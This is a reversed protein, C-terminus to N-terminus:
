PRILGQHASPSPDRGTAADGLSKTFRVGSREYGARSYFTHADDRQAGSTLSVRVAGNGRFWAEAVALLARGIGHKRHTSDVVLTTVWAVPATAHISPLMHGTVLGVLGAEEAVWARALPFREIARLRLAIEEATSPYGLQDLLAVLAPADSETAQRIRPTATV